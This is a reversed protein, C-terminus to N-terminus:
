FSRSIPVVAQQFGISTCLLTGDVATAPIKFSFYGQENTVAGITPAGQLRVNAGPIGEGNDSVVRGSITVDDQQSNVTSAANGQKLIIKNSILEYRIALPSCIMELVEELQKDKVNLSIKRGAPIEDNSFVFVYATQQEIKEFVDTLRADKVQLSIRKELPKRTDKEQQTGAAGSSAAYVHQAYLGPLGTLTFCTCLLLFLLRYAGVNPQPRVKM